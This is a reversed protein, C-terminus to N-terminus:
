ANGTLALGARHPEEASRGRDSEAWGVFMLLYHNGERDFINQLHFDGYAYPVKAYDILIREILARDSETTDM